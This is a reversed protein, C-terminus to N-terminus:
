RNQAGHFIGLVIIQQAEEDIEHVLIYPLGGVVWEHTGSPTARRVALRVVRRWVYQCVPTQTLHLASM